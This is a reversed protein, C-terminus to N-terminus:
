APSQDCGCVSVAVLLITCALCLLWKDKLLKSLSNQDKVNKYCDHPISNPGAMNM